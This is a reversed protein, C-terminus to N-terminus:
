VESPPSLDIGLVSAFAVVARGIEVPEVQSQEPFETKVPDDNRAAPKSSRSTVPKAEATRAGVNKVPKATRDQKCHNAITVLQNGPISRAIREQLDDFFSLNHSLYVVLRMVAVM